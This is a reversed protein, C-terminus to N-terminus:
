RMSSMWTGNEVPEGEIQRLQAMEEPTFIPECFGEVGIHEEEPRQGAQPQLGPDRRQDASLTGAERNVSAM